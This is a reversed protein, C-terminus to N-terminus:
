PQVPPQWDPEMDRSSPSNSINTQNSGNATMVYIEPNQDRTSTFAIWQGDFSYAPEKNGLSNTLKLPNAGHDSLKALWIENMTPQIWAFVIGSNDPAWDLNEAGIIHDTRDFREPEGPRPLHIYIRGRAGNISTSVAIQNGDPSWAPSSEVAFGASINTPKVSWCANPEGNLCDSNMLFVQDLKNIRNSTFAILQGDPSWAPDVDDGAQHTVDENQTGDVNIIWIDQGLDNGLDDRGGPAVYLIRKGDPSWRPQHKDGPGFTIQKPQSGDPNMTWIQLANGEGRDSVFVIRGGGGIVIPAQTPTETPVPTPTGAETPLVTPQPTATDSAPTSSPNVVVVAAGTPTSKAGPLGRTLALAVGGGVLVLGILGAGGLGLWLWPPRATSKEKMTPLDARLTPSAGQSKLAAQFTAVDPFRQEQSISLARQLCAEVNPPVAPNLARAPKLQENGMMREISDAPATGTLLNYMTAALAYQDSRADTRGSGYQEPPSFGPTLGRAGTSTQQHDFVKALGFDVLVVNGDPQVKINSPKIDRHIVPPKLSHLYVLAECVADGWRLVEPPTPPQRRARAHLDEGEIYDMVLYQRGELIFHDTVRPLNPHRLSALLSAERHFQRESEPNLNLNEKLAVKIQLTQDFALFVAGMGGKGLQGDIRYRDHLISGEDLSM